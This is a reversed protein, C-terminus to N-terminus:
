PFFTSDYWQKDLGFGVMMEKSVEETNLHVDVKAKKASSSKKLTSPRKRKNRSQRKSGGPTDQQEKSSSEQTTLLLTPHVVTLPKHQKM